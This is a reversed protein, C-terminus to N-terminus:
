LKEVSIIATIHLLHRDSFDVEESYTVFLCGPILKLHGNNTVLIESQNFLYEANSDCTDVVKCIKTYVKHNEYEETKIEEESKDFKHRIIRTTYKVKYYQDLKTQKLEKQLLEMINKYEGDTIREKIDYIANSTEM